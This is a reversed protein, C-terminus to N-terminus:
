YILEQGQTMDGEHSCRVDVSDSVLNKEGGFFHPFLQSAHLVSAPTHLNYIFLPERESASARQRQDKGKLLRAVEQLIM